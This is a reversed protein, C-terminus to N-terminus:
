AAVRVFYDYTLTVSEIQVESATNDYSSATYSSPWAGVLRWRFLETADTDMQVIDVNRKYQGSPLGVGTGIGPGQVGSVAADGCQLRWAYIDVNGNIKVGRELTIDEFSILGAAKHAISTGGERHEIVDSTSTIESCNVFKGEAVGDIELYFKHKTAYSVVPGSITM